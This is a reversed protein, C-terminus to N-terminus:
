DRSGARLLRMDAEINTIRGLQGNGPLQIVQVELSTLRQRTKRANTNVNTRLSQVESLILDQIDARDAHAETSIHGETM